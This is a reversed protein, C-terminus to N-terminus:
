EIARLAAEGALLVTERNHNQREESLVQEIEEKDGTATARVIRENQEAISPKPEDPSKGEEWFKLEFDKHDRIAAIMDPDSTTFRHPLNEGEGFEAAKGPLKEVIQGRHNLVEDKPVFVLRLNPSKAYFTIEEQKPAAKKAAPKKAARKKAARKKAAPKPAPADAPPADAVAQEANEVEAEAQPTTTTAEM